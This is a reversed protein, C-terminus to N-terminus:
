NAAGGPDRLCLEQSAVRFGSRRIWPHEAAKMTATPCRATTPSFQLVPHIVILRIEEEEAALLPWHDQPIVALSM